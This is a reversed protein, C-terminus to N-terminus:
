LYKIFAMPERNGPYGAIAENNYAEREFSINEYAQKGYKPLKCLWEVVYWLYFFIYGMERMQRSHIEEHQITVADVVAGHRVLLLGFLNLAVFGRTPLYDNVIIRM